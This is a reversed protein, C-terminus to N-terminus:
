KARPVNATHELRATGALPAVTPSTFYDKLTHSTNPPHVMRASSAITSSSHDNLAGPADTPHELPATGAPLAIAPSTFYDKLKRPANPPHELPSAPTSSLFYDKLTRPASPPAVADYFLTEFKLTEDAGGVTLWDIGMVVASPDAGAGGFWGGVLTPGGMETANAAMRAAVYDRLGSTFDEYYTDADGGREPFAGPPGGGSIELLHSQDGLTVTSPAYAVLLDEPRTWASAM